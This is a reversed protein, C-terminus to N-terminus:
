LYFLIAQTLPGLSRIVGTRREPAITIGQLLQVHHTVLGYQSISHSAEINQEAIAM